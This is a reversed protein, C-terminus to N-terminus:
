EITPMYRNGIPRFGTLDIRLMLHWNPYNPDVVQFMYNWVLPSAYGNPEIILRPKNVDSWLIHGDAGPSTVYHRNPAFSELSQGVAFLGHSRDVNTMYEAWAVEKGVAVPTTTDTLTTTVGDLSVVEPIADYRLSPVDQFGLRKYQPKYDDAFMTRMLGKAIGSSYSVEPVLTVLYMFVCQDAASCRLRKRRGSDTTNVYASMQGLASGVARGDITNETDSQSVVGQPDVYFSFTNLFIPRDLSVRSRSGWVVRLVDKYRGGSIALRDNELADRTSQRLDNVAIRDDVVQVYSELSDINTLLNQLLDNEYRVHFMGGFRILCLWRMIHFQWSSHYKGYDTPDAINFSERISGWISVLLDSPEKQARLWIFFDDLASVPMKIDFADKLRAINGNGSVPIVELDNISNGFVTYPIYDLQSNLAYSRIIDLYALLRDANFSWGVTGVAPVSIPNFSSYMYGPPFGLYDLLSGPQVGFQDRYLGLPNSLFEPFKINTGETNSNTVVSNADESSALQGASLEQNNGPLVSAYMAYYPMGPFLGEAYPAISNNDSDIFFTPFPRFPSITWHRMMKIDITKLRTNNDMWGYYNTLPCQFASVRFKFRGFYPTQFPNSLLSTFVKSKFVDDPLMDENFIPIHLCSHLSTLRNASLNKVSRPVDKEVYNTPINFKAMNSLM